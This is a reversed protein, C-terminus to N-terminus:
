VLSGDGRFFPYPGDYDGIFSLHTVHALRGGDQSVRHLLVAPPEFEFTAPAGPRVDLTVAHAPSPGILTRVGGVTASVMRHVHGCGIALLGRGEVTAALREAERCNNRDMHEIGTLFPPHHLFLLAPGERRLAEALWACREATALGYPAGAVTSDLMLLRLGGVSVEYGLGEGARIAGAEPFAEWILASDHNGPIVWLPARLPAVLRKFDAYEAASGYDVLDGSVVVADPAPDLANLHAVAAALFRTTDVEGYALGGNARIHTDTLQAILPM